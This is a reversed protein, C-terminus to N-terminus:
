VELRPHYGLGRWEVEDIWGEDSDDTDLTPYEGERPPLGRTEGEVFAQAEADEKTTGDSMGMFYYLDMTERDYM